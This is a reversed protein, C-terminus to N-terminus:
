TPQRPLRGKRAPVGIGLALLTMVGSALLLWDQQVGLLFAASGGILSWVVPIVLLWRSYGRALLLMGFTFITVPCPTVGFMPMDPWAHGTLMGIHPYVTM